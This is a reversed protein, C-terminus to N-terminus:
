MKTLQIKLIYMSFVNDTLCYMSISCLFLHRKYYVDNTTINPVHYNKAYDFVIAEKTKDKRSNRKAKRKIKYWEDAKLLHIDKDSTINKIEIELKEKTENDKASQQESKLCSIKASYLDCQSCTDYRPYGFALNFETCFITRCSEYSVNCEPNLDKFM